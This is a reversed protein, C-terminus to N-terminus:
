AVVRFVVYKAPTSGSNRLGHLVHEPCFLATMPGVSHRTDGITFEGEGELLFIVEEGAHAHPEHAAKGPDIVSVHTTVQRAGCSAASVFPLMLGKEHQQM